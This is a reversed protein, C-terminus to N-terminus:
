AYGYSYTTEHGKVIESYWAEAADVGHVEEDVGGLGYLIDDLANCEAITEADTRPRSLDEAIDRTRVIFALLRKVDEFRIPYTEAPTVRVDIQTASM